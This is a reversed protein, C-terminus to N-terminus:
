QAPAPEAPPVESKPAKGLLGGILDGLAKGQKSAAFKGVAKKVSEVVAGPNKALAKLDLTIKPKAWPGQVHMPFTLGGADAGTAAAATDQTQVADVVTTQLTLDMTRSPLDATGAGALKLLPASVQLDRTALEGNTVSCSATLSAFDTKATPQSDWGGLQGNQLAKVGAALNLGAIAGDALELRGQGMLSKVIELQNRGSGMFGFSLDGRGVFRDFGLADTLLPQANVGHLAFNAELKGASGNAELTVTGQGKGGYLEIESLRDKMLGDKLTVKIASKGLKIDHWRVAGVTLTADADIRPLGSLDIPETSWGSVGSSTANPTTRATELSKTPLVPAASSPPSAPKDPGSRLYTNLDLQDIALDARILPRDKGRNVSFSGTIAMGDLAVRANRMSLGVTSLGFDSVLKVPGFGSGPPLPQRLWALLQRLSGAELEISGGLPAANSPALLGNIKANALSGSTTVDVAAPDGSLLNAVPGINGNIATTEGAWDLSGSIRAPYEILGLVLDLSVNSLTEHLGSRDDIVKITGSQVRVNRFQLRQLGALKGSPTIATPAATAPPAVLPSTDVMEAGRLRPKNSDEKRLDWSRRGEADTRLIFVPKDLTVQEVQLVHRMLPWLPVQLVLAGIALAPDGPMGDPSSLSVDDLEVSTQPYFRLSIPGSVTLKRGTRELVQAALEDRVFDTPLAMYAFAAAAAALGLVGVACYYILRM